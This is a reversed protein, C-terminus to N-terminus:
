PYASSKKAYSGSDVWLNLKEKKSNLTVDLFDVEVGFGFRM